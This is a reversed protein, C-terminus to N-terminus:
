VSIWNFASIIIGLPTHIHAGFSHSEMGFVSHYLWSFRWCLIRPRIPCFGKWFMTQTAESKCRPPRPSSHRGAIPLVIPPAVMKTCATARFHKDSTHNATCYPITHPYPRHRSYLILKSCELGSLWKSWKLRFLRYPLFPFENWHCWFTAISTPLHGPQFQTNSNPTTHIPNRYPVFVVCWVHKGLTWNHLEPQKM